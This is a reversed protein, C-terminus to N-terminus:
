NQFLSFLTCFQLSGISKNGHLSQQNHFLKHNGCVKYDIQNLYCEVKKLQQLHVVLVLVDLEDVSLDLLSQYVALVEEDELALVVKAVDAQASVVLALVVEDVLASVVADALVSVVLALVAEDVPASVAEDVLASVVEVEDALRNGFAQKCFLPKRKYAFLLQETGLSFDL